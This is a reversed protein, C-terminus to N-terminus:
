PARRLYEKISREADGRARVLEAKAVNFSYLAAIRVQQAQALAQQAQVVELNNTVGAAFRDRAQQLQQTALDVGALAVEVQRSASRLDIFAVRVEADIRGRLDDTEARRRRLLADALEVDAQVRGGQFVPIDVAAVIAFSGHTHTVSQGIAGYNADLTASPYRGARAASKELEAAEVLEKAARYDQRQEYARQLTSELTVSTDLPTYPITDALRFQQGAPLGIARSLSLKQRELDGEYAILQQREAQMEVQARLVDIGPVTGANKRDVAQRYAAEATTVQSQQADVRAAAAIGLLYLGTVVVTVQERVDRASSQAAALEQRAARYNGLNRLSFISQSLNARADYVTFPGVIQPVGAFGSFGFAALNVQQETVSPRLSITPMLQSLAQLRQARQQRVNEGTEALGLNYLLGRELAGELTLDLPGTTAPESAVSGMLPNANGSSVPQRVAPSPTTREYAPRPPGAPVPAQARALAAFCFAFGPIALLKM